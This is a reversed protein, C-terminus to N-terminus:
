VPLGPLRFCKKLFNMILASTQCNPRVTVESKVFYVPPNCNRLMQQRQATASSKSGLGQPQSNKSTPNQVVSNTVRDYRVVFCGLFVSVYEVKENRKIVGVYM